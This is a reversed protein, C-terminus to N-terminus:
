DDDSDGDSDDHDSDDDSDEDSDHDADEDDADDDDSDGQEDNEDEDHDSDDDLHDEDHDADEDADDEDLDEDEDSEESADDDDDSEDDADGDEDLDEDEDTDGDEDSDGDEDEDEDSEEDGDEDEDTDDAGDGEDQEPETDGDGSQEDRRLPDREQDFSDEGRRSLDLGQEALFSELSQESGDVELVLEGSASVRAVFFETDGADNRFGLSVPGDFGILLDLDLVGGEIEGDGVVMGDESWVGVRTDHGLPIVAFVAVLFFPSLVSLLRVIRTTVNRNMSDTDSEFSLRNKLRPASLIALVTPGYGAEHNPRPRCGLPGM